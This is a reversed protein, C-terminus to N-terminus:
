PKSFNGVATPNLCSSILGDSKPKRARCVGSGAIFSLIAGAIIAGKRRRMLAAAL